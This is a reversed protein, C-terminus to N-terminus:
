AIFKIRALISWQSYLALCAQRLPLEQPMNAVVDIHM